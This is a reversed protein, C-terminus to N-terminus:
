PSHLINDLTEKLENEKFEGEYFSSKGNRCDIILTAPIAGSWNKSVKPIIENFDTEDLLVVKSELQKNSIFKKVRFNLEDADDLSVLTVDVNEYTKNVEEFLPIEKICPACWTAWFNYVKIKDKEPCQDFMDFLQESKILTATQGFGKLCFLMYILIFLVQSNFLLIKPPQRM